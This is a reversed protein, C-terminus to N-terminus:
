AMPTIHRGPVSPHDHGDDFGVRWYKPTEGPGIVASPFGHKHPAKDNEAADLRGTNTTWKAYVRQGWWFTLEACVGQKKNFQTKLLKESNPRQTNRGVQLRLWPLIAADLRAERVSADTGLHREVWAQKCDKTLAAHLTSGSPAPQKGLLHERFQYALLGHIVERLSARSPSSM